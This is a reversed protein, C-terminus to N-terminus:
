WVSLRFWHLRHVSVWFIRRSLWNVSKAFWFWGVTWALWGLISFWNLRFLPKPNPRLLDVALQVYTGSGSVVDILMGSINGSTPSGQLQFITPSVRLETTLSFPQTPPSQIGTLAALKFPGWPGVYEPEGNHVAFAYM